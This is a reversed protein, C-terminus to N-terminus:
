FCRILEFRYYSLIYLIIVSLNIIKVSAFIDNILTGKSELLNLFDVDSNQHNKVNLKYEEFYEKRKEEKNVQDNLNYKQINSFCADNVRAMILTMDKSDSFKKVPLLFSIFGDIINYFNRNIPELDKMDYQSQLSNKLTCLIDLCPVGYILLLIDSTKSMESFVFFLIQIILTIHAEHEIRDNNTYSSLLLLIENFFFENQAFSLFAQRSLNSKTINQSIKILIDLSKDIFSENEEKASLLTDVKGM